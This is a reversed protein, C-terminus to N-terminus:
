GRWLGQVDTQKRLREELPESLTQAFTESLHSHDYYALVGGVVSLCRENRCLFSNLNVLSIEPHDLAQVADAQPDMPIWSEEAGSCDLLDDKNQAVCDPVNELTEGPWPTDRLVVIDSGTREWQTLMREYALQVPAESEALSHGAIPVSQRNSSIILDYDGEGLKETVWDEYEACGESQAGSDFRQPQGMVACANALYTDISWSHKHALPELAPLWHGAHSNGVLAIKIKGEGYSCVPKDSFNDRKSAFCGDAYVRPKDDKAVVPAPALTEYATAPDECDKAMAAAGFCDPGVEEKVQAAGAEVDQSAKVVNQSTMYFCGIVLSLVVSGAVLFRPPSLWRSRDLFRRFRTEVLKQTLAALLFTLVVAGLKETASFDEVIFPALVLIPWHWLYIVYSIDGTFRMFRNEFWRTPSFRHVSNAVIVLATGAVPLAAIVGPFPMEGDFALASAIIAGVGAWAVIAWVKHQKEAYVSAGLAAVLAGAAFEWMRTFTSFYAVGADTRTLYISYGLSAVCLASTLFVAMTRQKLGFRIATTLLLAIVVPWVLYFQEEVSLTWFHQFPSPADAEALYDVKTTALYWNQFYFTAALAQLGWGAWVTEPALLWIGAVSALIVLFSAPLLRKVRRMWFRAVESVNRPLHNLLHSTILFGSVVFFVDVGIFGGPLRHPWFHYLLVVGVAIARLGQIDGRFRTHQQSPGLAGGADPASTTQSV